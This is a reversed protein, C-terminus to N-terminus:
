RSSYTRSKRRFDRFIYICFFLLFSGLNDRNYSCSTIHYCSTWGKKNSIRTKFSSCLKKSAGLSFDNTNNFEWANSFVQCFLFNESLFKLRTGTGWNNRFKESLFVYKFKSFNANRNKEYIVSIFIEADWKLSWFDAENGNWVETTLDNFTLDLM